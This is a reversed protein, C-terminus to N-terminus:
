PKISLRMLPTLLQANSAQSGHFRRIVLFSLTIVWLNTIMLVVPEIQIQLVIYLLHPIKLSISVM